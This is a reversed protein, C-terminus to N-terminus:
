TEGSHRDFEDGAGGIRPDRLIAVDGLRRQNLRPAQEHRFAAQDHAPEDRGAAVTQPRHQDAFRGVRAQLSHQGRGALAHRNVHAVGAVKGADGPVIEM